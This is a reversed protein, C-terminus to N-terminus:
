NENIGEFETSNFDMVQQISKKKLSTGNIYEAFEYLPQLEV